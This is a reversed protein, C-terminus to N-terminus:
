KRETTLLLALRVQHNRLHLSLFIAGRPPHLDNEDSLIDAM